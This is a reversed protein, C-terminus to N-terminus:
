FIGLPYFCGLPYKVNSKNTDPNESDGPDYVSGCQDFVCVSLLKVQRGVRPYPTLRENGANVDTITSQIYRNM